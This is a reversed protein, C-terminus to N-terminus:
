QPYCEQLPDASTKTGRKISVDICVTEGAAYDDVVIQDGAIARLQDGPRDFRKWLFEDGDQPDPNVITFTLTTEAPVISGISPTPISAAVIADGGAGPTPSTAATPPAPVGGLVIGATVAGAIVVAAAISGWLV